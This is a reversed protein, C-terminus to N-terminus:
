RAINKRYLTFESSVFFVTSDDVSIRNLVLLLSDNRWTLLDEPHQLLSPNSRILSDIPYSLVVTGNGDKRFVEYRTGHSGTYDRSPLMVTYDGLDVPNNRVCQIISNDVEEDPDYYFQYPKYDWYGYRIQFAEDGMSSRVYDIVDAAEHYQRCLMSDNKISKLDIENVLHGTAPDTLGLRGILEDLRQQQCRLGIDRASIGPIYTFLVVATGFILAMWQYRRTRDSRLMIVFLTMLLGAVMLYVRSETFDYLRIRYLSGVWYLILPPVAILTFRSYFWDYYHRSLVSQAVRGVLAAAIFGMVMWAVGGKPLDWMIVIKCFYVYLIATYIIVAPSLIFDFFLTLARAPESVTDEDRRILSCCVPPAVAFWIFELIYEYFHSPPVIGFIYFFSATVAIVALNFLGTLLLGLLLQTVVHLAHSAFSRNDMWRNGTVLLLFALVYTFTFGYTFLFPKLNLAMLPLFLFFSAIYAWRNVRHLWFCLTWLPVFLALIEDNVLSEMRSTEPNWTNTLTFTAAIIFFAFGLATELPFQRPSRLLLRFFNQLKTIM